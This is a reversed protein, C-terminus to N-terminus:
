RLLLYGALLLVALVALLLVILRRPWSAEPAAAGRLSAAASGPLERTGSVRTIGRDRPEFLLTVEGLSIQAGPSLAIEGRVTQDDVRSGNTSGLDTLVWIGEKLQLKAHNASISADPLAIDNYEGRGINTVPTRVELREGKRQGRKVLLTALPETAAPAPAADMIPPARRVAQLGIITDGLRREAGAPPAAVDPLHYRFDAEGVRIVDGQRLMVPATIRRGNVSVGNSSLDVLSNGGPVALLEAHRRSVLDSEIVLNATADRGIVFPVADVIYERGDTLSVLRAKPLEPAPPTSAPPSFVRTPGARDPDSVAIELGGIRLKDGHMLPTPDMGLRAGNVLIEAGPEGPAVVAMGPALLRVIAHRARIGASVLVLTAGPASGIVLEGAAVPYRRGGYELEM